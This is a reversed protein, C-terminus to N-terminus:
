IQLVDLLAAVEAESKVIGRNEPTIFGQEVASDFLALLPDFYRDVNLIGIPKRHLRLQAWTVIECFEDLTGYGGPLAIFADSLDAMLAKREHMTRVVRLETLAQHAIEADALAQPIVGVVNGGASLAADAVVGMLGVHGGRYVIGWGRAVIARAVDAAAVSFKPYSGTRAGCFIGVNRM